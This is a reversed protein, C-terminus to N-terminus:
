PQSEEGVITAVVASFDLDAAGSKAASDLWARSASSVKVDRGAAAAAEIVLRLDKAAHRLKFAPPYHGSEINARKARVMPALPSGELMNLVAARDLGLGEALGLAEGVAAISTGLALNAVLKMAAGAGFGGVRAVSGLSELIPRVREFDEDSAGVFIELRGETAVSVSGRVPADVVAVGTLKSAISRITDPGVTSMDIYVHGAGLARALGNEGLVVDQLADPTSLMTIVFEAAAGAQAPSGAVAAGEAALSKAHDATRDWVTLQHGAQLLRRAMPAGMQGLGLFAIKAM